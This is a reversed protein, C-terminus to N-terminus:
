SKSGGAFGPRNVTVLTAATSSSGANFNAPVVRSGISIRIVPNANSQLQIRVTSASNALDDGTNSVINTLSFAAGAGLRTPPNEILTVELDPQPKRINHERYAESVANIDNRRLSRLGSWLEHISTPHNHFIDDSPDFNRIVTWINAFSLDINDRRGAGTADQDDSNSDTLDWLLAAIIGETKDEQGPFEFPDPRSEFNYRTQGYGDAANFSAHLVAAFYDPWGETWSIVGKEPSFICHSNVPVDCTDNDYDPAPSEARTHLVHHGYEHFIDGEENFPVTSQLSISKFFPNYFTGDAPWSVSVTEMSENINAMLQHARMILNHTQFARQNSNITITGFNVAGGSSNLRTSTRFTYTGGFIGDAKVEVASNNLVIRVFLDPGDFLDGCSADLSFNGDADTIGRACREDGLSPFPNENWLEVTANRVGRRINQDDIYTFRGSAQISVAAARNNKGTRESSAELIPEEQIPQGPRHRRNANAPEPLVTSEPFHPQVSETDEEPTATTFRPAKANEPERGEEPASDGMQATTLTATVAQNQGGALRISAKMEGPDGSLPVAKLVFRIKQGKDLSGAWYRPGDIIQWGAPALLEYEALSVTDAAEIVIHVSAAEGIQPADASAISLRVPPGVHAIASMTLLGALSAMTVLRAAAKRIIQVLPSM